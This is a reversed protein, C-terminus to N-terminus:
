PASVDLLARLIRVSTERRRGVNHFPETPGAWEIELGTSRSNGSIGRWSGKGAHNAIGLAVVYAIDLGNGDKERSQLVQCLPGPLDSRGFTVVNLSPALGTRPGATWHMLVARPRSPFDAGRKECGAVLRFTVGRDRLADPLELLRM